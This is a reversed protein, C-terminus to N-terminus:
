NADDDSVDDTFPSPEDASDDAPPSARLHANSALEAGPAIRLAVGVGAGLLGLGLMLLALTKRAM